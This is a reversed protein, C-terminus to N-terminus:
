DNKGGNALNAVAKLNNALRRKDDYSPTYNPLCRNELEVLCCHLLKHEVTDSRELDRACTNYSLGFFEKMVRRLASEVGKYDGGGLLDIASMHLVTLIQWKECHRAWQLRMLRILKVLIITLWLVVLTVATGIAILGGLYKYKALKKDVAAIKLEAIPVPKFSRYFKMPQIDTIPQPSSAIISGVFISGPLLRASFKEEVDGVKVVLPIEVPKFEFEGPMYVWFPWTVTIVRKENEEYEAVVPEGAKFYVEEIDMTAAPGPHGDFSAPSNASKKTLVFEGRGLQPLADKNIKYYNVVGIKIEQRLILFRKEGLTPSGDPVVDFTLSSVPEIEYFLPQAYSVWPQESLLNALAFINPPWILDEFEVTYGRSIQQDDNPLANIARVKFDGLPNNKSELRRRLLDATIPSKTQITISDLVTVELGNDIVVPLVDTARSRLLIMEYGPVQNIKELIFDNKLSVYHPINPRVIYANKIISEKIDEIPVVDHSFRELYHATEEKSNFNPRFRIIIKNAIELGKVRGQGEYYYFDSMRYTRPTESTFLREALGSSVEEQAVVIRSGAMLLFLTLCHCIAM